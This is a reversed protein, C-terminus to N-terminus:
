NKIPNKEKMSNKKRAHRSIPHITKEEAKKLFIWTFNDVHMVAHQWYLNFDYSFM